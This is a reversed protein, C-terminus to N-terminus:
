NDNLYDNLFDDVKSHNEQIATFLKDLSYNQSFEFLTEKQNDIM